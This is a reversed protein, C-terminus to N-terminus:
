PRALRRALSPCVRRGREQMDLDFGYEEDRLDSRLAKEYAEKNMFAVYGKVCCDPCKHQGCNRYGSEFFNTIDFWNVSSADYEKSLM